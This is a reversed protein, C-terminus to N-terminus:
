QGLSGLRNQQQLPCYEQAFLHGLLHPRSRNRTFTGLLFEEGEIDIGGSEDFDGVLAVLIGCVVLVSDGDVIHSFFQHGARARMVDVPVGETFVHGGDFVCGVVPREVGERRVVLTDTARVGAVVRVSVDIM